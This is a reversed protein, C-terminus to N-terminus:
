LKGVMGNCSLLYINREYGENLKVNRMQWKIERSFIGLVRFGAQDFLAELYFLSLKKFVM